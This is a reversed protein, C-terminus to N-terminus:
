SEDQGLFFHPGKIKKLLGFWQFTILGWYYIHCSFYLYMYPVVRRQPQEARAWCHWGCCCHPVGLVSLEDSSQLEDNKSGAPMEEWFGELQQFPGWIARSDDMMSLSQWDSGSHTPHSRGWFSYFAFFHGLMIKIAPNQLTYGPCSVKLCNQSLM